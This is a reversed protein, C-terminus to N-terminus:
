PLAIKVLVPLHDSGIPPGATRDIICAENSVLVHDIPVLPPIPLGKIIRGPRAPWSPQPGFGQESDKFGGTLLERFALSWPGCNFDGIIIKTSPPSAIESQILLLERNREQYSTENKPTTPHAIAVQVPKGNVLLTAIIRPHHTRGFFRVQCQEFPFVSYLAMGPWTLVTQSYRYHQMIPKIADMWQKDIETLAVIDPQREAILTQFLDYHHNYPFESNFNLISIVQVDEKQLPQKHFYMSTIPISNLLIGILSLITGTRSQVLLSIGLCLALLIAYVLRLQSAIDCLWNNPIFGAISMVIVITATTILITNFIAKIQQLIKRDM